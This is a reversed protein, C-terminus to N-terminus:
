TALFRGVEMTFASAAEINSLHAAQLEAYQAGSIRDVISHGDAPSTVPDQAGAVVMTPVHISSISSGPNEGRFDADRVAACCAIYGDASISLLMQRASQVHQQFGVRFAPTFWRDLVSSAISQMGNKRVTEIRTNWGGANGIKLATNCLVIKRLREPAHVGLWMGTVGGMSLGCFYAHPLELHDLLNLVDNALQEITYPGPTVSSQGHGRTDYRLLQFNKSFAEFQADWMTLDTGLSNSLVLVPLDCPGTLDYHVRTNKLDAFPM